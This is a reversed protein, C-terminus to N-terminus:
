KMDERIMIDLKKALVSWSFEEMPSEFFKRLDKVVICRDVFPEVNVGNTVVPVGCALSEAAMNSWGARQEWTVFYKLTSFVNRVQESSLGQIPVPELYPLSSLSEVIHSEGKTSGRGSYYGVRIKDIPKFFDTNVGGELLTAYPFDNRFSRNNILFRAKPNEKHYDRYAKTYEGGAIVWIYIATSPYCRSLHKFSPPDGVLMIQINFPDNWHCIRGLIDQGFWSTDSFEGVSYRVDWNLKVLHNGVELFRRVGGFARMHPLLIGIKM